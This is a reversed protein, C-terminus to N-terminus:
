SRSCIFVQLFLVSINFAFIKTELVIRCWSQQITPSPRERDSWTQLPRFQLADNRCRLTNRNFAPRKKSFMHGQLPIDQLHCASRRVSKLYRTHPLPAQSDGSNSNCNNPLALARSAHLYSSQPLKLIIVKKGRWCNPHWGHCQHLWYWYWYCYCQHLCVFVPSSLQGAPM